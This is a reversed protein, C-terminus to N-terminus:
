ATSGCGPGRWRGVDQGGVWMIRAWTSSRCGTSRERSTGDTAPRRATTARAPVADVAPRGIATSPRPVAAPPRRATASATCGGVSASVSTSPRTGATLRRRSASCPLSCRSSCWPVSCVGCCSSSVGLSSFRLSPILLELM